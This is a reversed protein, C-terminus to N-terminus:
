KYIEKLLQRAIHSRYHATEYYDHYDSTYKNVGSFDYVNNRGFINNLSELDKPNMKIQNYMPNVIIKYNSHHNKLVNYINSLMEVQKNKIITPAVSDPYQETRFRKMIRENYYTGNKIKKEMVTRLNENTIPNYSEAVSIFGGQFLDPKVKKTIHYDIYAYLFKPHFFSKFHSLHFDVFNDNNVLGPTIMFIHSANNYTIGSLLQTDLIILVNKMEKSIKGVHEIRKMMAILREGHADFHYCRASDGIYKKWEDVEWCRSRSNGFIYSDYLYKEYHNDFNTTSVYDQNLPVMGEGEKETQYNEYHWVVKFPDLIIYTGIICIFPILYLIIKVLFNKM